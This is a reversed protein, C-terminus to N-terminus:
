WEIEIDGVRVRDGRKIGARGLARAAGLRALQEKLYQRKEEEGLNARTVLRELGPGSVIFGDNDRSVVVRAYRSQPRFVVQSAVEEKTESRKLAELEEAVKAMLESVGQGTMASIFLPSIGCASFEKELKARRERVQSLDLKNVVVLHVKELLSPEYQRLEQRVVDFDDLLNERSGDLLHILLRTREIHRLFEHGLGRGEHAGAVLGPIEALTFTKWGVEVVGLVPETTTFPYSAIRPRAASAASLLTSKGVNPHGIIGVDAILKLKLLLLYEEGPEGIQAIRPVQRTSTKFHTNGWGGRGGKAVLVRQGDDNIDALLQMEDEEGVRYVTTGLPVKVLLDEGGRGNKRQGQGDRGNSAAFRQKYSFGRLTNLNRDAVM